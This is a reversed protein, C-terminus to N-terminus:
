HLFIEAFRKESLNLVNAIKCIEDSNPSYKQRMMKSVKNVHWGMAEAFKYQTGCVAVIEGKLIQANM